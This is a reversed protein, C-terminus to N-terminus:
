DAAVAYPDRKVPLGFRRRIDALENELEDYARKLEAHRAQLDGLDTLLEAERLVTEMTM